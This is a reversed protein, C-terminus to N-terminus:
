KLSTYSNPVNSNGMTMNIFPDEPDLMELRSIFASANHEKWAHLYLCHCQAVELYSSLSGPVASRGLIFIFASHVKLADTNIQWGVRRLM